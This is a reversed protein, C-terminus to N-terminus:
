DPNALSVLLKRERRNASLSAGIGATFLIM